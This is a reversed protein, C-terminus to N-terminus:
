PKPPNLIYPFITFDKLNGNKSLTDKKGYKPKNIVPTEARDHVENFSCLM